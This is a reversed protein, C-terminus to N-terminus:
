RPQATRERETVRREVAFSLLPVTGSLLVLLTVGPSWRRALALQLAAILFGVFLAGHLPAVIAVAEPQDFGYKAVMALTLAVLLVGVVWAMVRYRTVVSSM